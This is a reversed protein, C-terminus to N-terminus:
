KGSETRTNLPARGIKKKWFKTKQKMQFIMEGFIDIQFKLQFPWSTQIYSAIKYIQLQRYRFTILKIITVM